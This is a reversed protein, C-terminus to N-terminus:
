AVKGSALVNLTGTGSTATYVARIFPVSTLTIDIVGSGSNGSLPITQVSTGLYSVTMPTWTGSNVVEGAANVEYDSSCEIAVTGVPSTGSWVFQYTLMSVLTLASVDSTLNTSMDGGKIVYESKFFPRRSM